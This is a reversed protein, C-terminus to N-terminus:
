KDKTGKNIDWNHIFLTLNRMDMHTDDGRGGWAGLGSLFFFNRTIWRGKARMCYSEEGRM